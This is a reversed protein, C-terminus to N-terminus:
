QVPPAPTSRSLEGDPGATVADPPAAPTLPPAASGAAPTLVPPEGAPLGYFLARVSPQLLVLFTFVGLLTGTTFQICAIGAVVLCFVYGRRRSILWGNATWLIAFTMPIAFVLAGEATLLWGIFERPDPEGPPTKTPITGTLIAIGCALLLMGFLSLFAYLGAAIYYFITLLKLREADQNM